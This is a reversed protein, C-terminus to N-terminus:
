KNIFRHKNIKINHIFIYKKDVPLIINLYMCVYIYNNKNRYM